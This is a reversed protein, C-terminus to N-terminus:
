STIKVSEVLEGLINFRHVVRIVESDSKRAIKSCDRCSLEMLNWSDYTPTEGRMVMKALLAKPGAPCRLEILEEKVSM